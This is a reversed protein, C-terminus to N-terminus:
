QDNELVQIACKEASANTFYRVPKKYLRATDVVRYYQTHSMANTQVWIVEAHRIITTDFTLEKSIFRVNGTLMPKIAKEWTDHGGFILTERQVEYPFVVATEPEPQEETPNNRNFVLERLDALERHELAATKREAELEKRVERGTKEADHLADRLRKIEKQQEALKGALDEPEDPSQGEEDFEAFFAEEGVELYHMYRSNFNLADGIRRAHGLANMCTLMMIADKGRLGYRSLMKAKSDYRHMYRPMLCGTEEYLIQALSRPFDSEGKKPLYKREYWDPFEPVKGSKLQGAAGRPELENGDSDTFGYWADDQDEEYPIVGWPLSEGVEQAIGVGSAYLWPLDYDNDIMYLLAFCAEYPDRISIPTMAAAVEEGFEERCEETPVRGRRVIDGMFHYKNRRLESLRDSTDNLEDVLATLRDEVKKLRQMDPDDMFTGSNGIPIGKYVFQGHIASAQSFKFGDAPIRNELIAAPNALPLVVNGQKGGKVSKQQKRREKLKRDLVKTIENQQVQLSNFLAEKEDMVSRLKNIERQMPAICSFYRDTWQWFYEEYHKVALDIQDQHLLSIIAEYDRRSKVDAHHKREATVTYTLRRIGGPTEENGGVDANRAYLVYQLSYILDANHQTDWIDPWDVEMLFDEDRPLHPLMEKHWDDRQTIRDLIWVAAGHLLYCEEDVETYTCPHIQLDIWERGLDHPNPFLEAFQEQYRDYLFQLSNLLADTRRNAFPESLDYQDLQKGSGDNRRYFKRFQKLLQQAEKNWEQRTKGGVTKQPEAARKENAM